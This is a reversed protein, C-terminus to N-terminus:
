IRTLMFLAATILLFLVGMNVNKRIFFYLSQILMLACLAVVVIHLM